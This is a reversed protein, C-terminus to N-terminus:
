EVSLDVQIEGALAELARRIVAADAGEPIPAGTYVAVAEGKGVKGSFPRGAPSEGIVRLRVPNERSAGLTDEQRCAYGDIATDDQDPHNVLSVLDEALVRGYAEKLPVEEVPLEGKAEALVLELAEEVSIGTRM